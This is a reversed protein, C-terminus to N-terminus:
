RISPTLRTMLLTGKYWNVPAKSVPRLMDNGWAYKKYANWSHLFEQRVEAALQTKESRIARDPACSSLILALMLPALILPTIKM